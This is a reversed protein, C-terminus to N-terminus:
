FFHLDPDSAHNLPEPDRRELGHSQVDPRALPDLLQFSTLKFRLQRDLMGDNEVSVKPLLTCLSWPYCSTYRGWGESYVGRIVSTYNFVDARHLQTIVM